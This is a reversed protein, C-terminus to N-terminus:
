EGDRRRRAQERRIEVLERENELVRTLTPIVERTYVLNSEKLSAKLDDIDALLRERDREWDVKAEDFVYTPMIKIRFLVMLLIVGVIGTSVIPGLFDFPWSMATSAVQTVTSPDPPTTATALWESFRQVLPRM